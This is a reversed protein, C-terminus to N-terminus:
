PEGCLWGATGDSLPKMHLQTFSLPHSTHLPPVNFFLFLGTYVGWSGTELSVHLSPVFQSNKLMCSM